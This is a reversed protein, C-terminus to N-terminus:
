LPIVISGIIRIFNNLPTNNQEKIEANMEQGSDEVHHDEVEGLRLGTLGEMEDAEKNVNGPGVVVQLTED